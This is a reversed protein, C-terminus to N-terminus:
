IMGNAELWSEMISTMANHLVSEVDGPDFRAGYKSGINDFIYDNVTRELNEYNEDEFVINKIDEESATGFTKNIVGQRSNSGREFNQNETIYKAKM